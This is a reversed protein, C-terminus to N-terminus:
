STEILRLSRLYGPMLGRVCERTRDTSSGDAVIVEFDGRVQELHELTAPLSDEENYTPIIISVMRSTSARCLQDVSQCFRDAKRSLLPSLACGVTVGSFCTMPRFCCFITSTKEWHRACFRRLRKLIPIRAAPLSLSSRM